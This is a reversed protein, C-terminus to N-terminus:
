FARNPLIHETLIKRLFDCNESSAKFVGRTHPAFEVELVMRSQQTAAKFNYNEKSIRWYIISNRMPSSDFHDQLLFNKAECVSREAFIWLNEYRRDGKAEVYESIFVSELKEEIYLNKYFDVIEAARELFLGKLGIANFYEIFTSEM